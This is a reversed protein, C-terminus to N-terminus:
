RSKDSKLVNTLLANEEDILCGLSEAMKNLKDKARDPPLSDGNTKEFCGQPNQMIISYVHAMQVDLAMLSAGAELLHTARLQKRMDDSPFISNAKEAHNVVESALQMIPTGILARYRGSMRVIFHLTETYIKNATTVFQAKSETRKCKLVSM